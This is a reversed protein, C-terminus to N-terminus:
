IKERASPCIPYLSILKILRKYFDANPKLIKEAMKTKLKKM